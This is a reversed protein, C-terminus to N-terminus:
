RLGRLRRSQEPKRLVGRIWVLSGEWTHFIRFDGSDVQWLPPRFGKLVKPAQPLKGLAYRKMDEWVRRFNSPDKKLLIRLDREARKTIRVNPPLNEVFGM